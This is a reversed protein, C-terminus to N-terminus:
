ITSSNSFATSRVTIDRLEYIPYQHLDIHYAMYSSSALRINVYGDSAVYAANDPNWNGTSVKNYNYLTGVWNHFTIWQDCQGPVSYYYGTIHWGGMIFMTNGFPSGGGWMSTRIHLYTNSSSTAGVWWGVVHRGNRVSVPGNSIIGPENVAFSSNTSVALRNTNSDISLTPTNITTTSSSLGGTLTSDPTLSWSSVGFGYSEIILQMSNPAGMSWGSTYGELYAVDSTTAIRWNTFYQSGTKEVTNILATDVWDKFGRIVTQGPSMNGGTSVIYVKFSGRTGKSGPTSTTQAFRYWGASVTAPITISKTYPIFKNGTSIDGLSSVINGSVTLGTLTGVSTINPQAATTVTGATSASGSVSGTITNTVTLSTLTGVSTINPQAATPVTFSGATLAGSVALSSLTGVSTINPQSATSLTGTLTTASVANANVTGSAGIGGTVVLSGSSTSSSAIGATVTVQNNAAVSTFSGAARTTNGIVVNNISSSSTPAITLVSPTIAVTASGGNITVDGSFAATTAVLASGDESIVVYNVGDSTVSAVNSAFLSLTSTGSGGTGIFAGTPTSITNTGTTTNHFTFNSGPFAAPSPLTVTYPATGTM